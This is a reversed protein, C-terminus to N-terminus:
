CQNRWNSLTLAALLFQAEKFASQPSQAYRSYAKRLFEVSVWEEISEPNAVLSELSKKEYTWLSQCLLSNFFVKSHREQIMVPLNESLARRM